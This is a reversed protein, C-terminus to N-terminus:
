ASKLRDPREVELGGVMGAIPNQQPAPKAPEDVMLREKMLRGPKFKVTRRSPVTVPKLTKPNQAARAARRRVEFVGFDRFEIRQGRGLQEVLEELFAQLVPRVREDAERPDIGLKARVAEIFDKKTLTEM